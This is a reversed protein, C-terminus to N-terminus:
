SQHEQKHLEILVPARVPTVPQQAPAQLRASKARKKRRGNARAAAVKAPSTSQGGRRGLMVAADHPTTM